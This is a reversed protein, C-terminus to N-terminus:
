GSRERGGVWKAGVRRGVKMGVRSRDRRAVSGGREEGNWEVQGGGGNWEVGM